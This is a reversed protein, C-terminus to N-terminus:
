DEPVDSSTFVAEKLLAEKIAILKNQKETVTDDNM